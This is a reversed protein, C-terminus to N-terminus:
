KSVIECTDLLFVGKDTKGRRYVGEVTIQTGQAIKKLRAADDESDLRDTVRAIYEAADAEVTEGSELVLWGPCLRSAERVAETMTPFHKM